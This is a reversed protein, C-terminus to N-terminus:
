AVGMKTCADWLEACIYDIDSVALEPHLPLSLTDAALAESEPFHGKTYGLDAFAEQLHVPIPYHIGTEIERELLAKQIADRKKLACPMFTIPMLAPNEDGPPRSIGREDLRWDYEAALARRTQAWRDLHKLKVRLIAGQLNDM